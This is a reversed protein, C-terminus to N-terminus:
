IKSFIWRSCYGPSLPFFKIFHSLKIFVSKTRMLSGPERRFTDGEYYGMNGRYAVEWLIRRMFYRDKRDPTYGLENEPLGLYGTLVGGCARYAREVGFAKLHSRLEDYNIEDRKVHLLMALDCFQRLGIGKEVLHHYLHLFLYVAHLTPHLTPITVGEFDIETYYKRCLQEWLADQRRNNLRVLCKHQEIWVNNHRFQEHHHEPSYSEYEGGWEERIVQQAKAYNAPDCYFDIDGGSRLWPKPYNRGVVQGKVIELSVGHSMLLAALSKMEADLAANRKQIAQFALVYKVFLSNQIDQINGGIEGFVIGLVAQRSSEKLIRLTEGESYNETKGGEFLAARLIKMVEYFEGENDRGCYASKDVIAKVTKWTPGRQAARTKQGARCFAQWMKTGIPNGEEDQGASHQQIRMFKYFVFTVLIGLAIVSFVQVTVSAGLRWLALCCLIVLVNTGIIIMSTAAHSFGMDIFLHHLHSKDPRFPSHGRVIRAVMVRLTDFVPICMIALSIAVPSLGASEISEGPRRSLAGFVFIVLIFGLMMTGGDGIFMKSKKGFVNHTFFPLIATAVILALGSWVLQGIHIFIVAFCLCSLMCLGSSYGDVGDIMNFANIIGVGAILSLPISVWLSLEYIGLFGFFGAIYHGSYLIYGGVIAFQVAFRLLVPLNKIDDWVGMLLMTTLAMLSWSISAGSGLLSMVLCGVMVGAYVAVGGMVPVPKRHLKRADPNDVINHRRAYRLVLPYVAASVLLSLLSTLILIQSHSM